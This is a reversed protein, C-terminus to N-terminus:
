ASSRPATLAEILGRGLELNHQCREPSYDPLGEWALHICCDPAFRQLEAVWDRPGALDGQLTQVHALTGEGGHTGQSAPYSVVTRSRGVCGFSAARYVREGRDRLDAHAARRYRARISTRIVEIRTRSSKPPSPWEFGFAPDDYRLGREAGPAYFESVYYHM